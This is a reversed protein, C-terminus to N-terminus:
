VIEFDLHSLGTLFSPLAAFQVAPRAGSGDADYFLAGTAPDYIIRDTADDAAAGSHFAAEALPGPGTLATFVGQNLLIRNEGDLFDTIRDLNRRGPAADFLFRDAGGGGELLDKGWRGALLDDGEGGRLHNGGRSGLLVDDHRSGNANEIGCLMDYGEGSARGRALDVTVGAAAGAYVARDAGAGGELRDSGRGGDLYDDGAGGRLIDNGTGGALKDEGTGGRLRDSGAGGILHDDGSRGALRDDGGQGFLIDPLASGALLDDGAGGSRAQLEGVLMSSWGTWLSGPLLAAGVEDLHNEIYRMTADGVEAAIEFFFISRPDLHYSWGINDAAETRVVTGGIRADGVETGAILARAHDVAAPDDLRIVFIEGSADTFTFWAM